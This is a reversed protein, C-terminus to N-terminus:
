PEGRQNVQVARGDHAADKKATLLQEIVAYAILAEDAEQQLPKIIEALARHHKLVQHICKLAHITYDM